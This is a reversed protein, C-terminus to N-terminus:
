GNILNDLFAGVEKVAFTLAEENPSMKAHHLPFPTEVGLWFMVGPIKSLLFGFDEGTMAPLCEILDVSERKKFFAMLNKALEPNNEVPLYGGQKLEIQVELNFSAAVGEAITQIRKQTLISMEQTLTRITGHLDARESIINNTTGAHMSGFTVVAGEIPDVNRSVITQVQTLFYAAAILADNSHHPFAAHGGKGLFAIKVECTGAFLTSTNTAIQGVKLDPRVHLAYCEDPIWENLAGDQYMLMGGAENEEAPQFILLMNNKPKYKSLRELLGLAVTMHVDHGCAHMNGEHQSSFELGTEEKVPLGDIDTRWAVTKEPDYGCLYVLIGTQWTKITIFPKNDSIEKIINLLFAQTKVEKLGIEPIQHLHRRTALLDIM